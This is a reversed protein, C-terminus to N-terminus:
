RSKTYITIVSINDTEGRQKNLEILTKNGTKISSIIGDDSHPTLYTTMEDVTIHHRFGDSCLMYAVNGRTDGFFLDPYVREDVGICKVLVNKMPSVEAQEESMNGLRVQDAVVTHDCTLQTAKKGIEYVRSDGVNLIFYRTETLLLVVATSGLKCRNEIGYLRIKKNQTAVLNIWQKRIIQDDLASSISPLVSGAWASFASVISASAIEGHELGGMGDCLVAFVIKGQATMFQEVFLNDQNESKWAGVDTAADIYFDM